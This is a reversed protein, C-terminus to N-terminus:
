IAVINMITTFADPSRRRTTPILECGCRWGGCGGNDKSLAPNPPNQPRVGLEDWERAYAVIGNLASCITCHEKEPSYVWELKTKEEATALIAQNVVDPYRNAWIDV